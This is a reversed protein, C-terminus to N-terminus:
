SEEEEYEDVLRNRNEKVRHLGYSWKLYLEQIQDYEDTGYL